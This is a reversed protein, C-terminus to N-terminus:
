GILKNLEHLYRPVETIPDAAEEYELVVYGRYNAQNLIAILKELDAPEKKGNVPIVVKIQANIAYPAIRALDAYPDPTIALNGSDLNAGFWPSDVSEIIQLYRDIDTTFDHNEMALIMGKTAAYRCATKLNAIINRVAQDKNMEKAPNGAFVRIVPVGMLAYTDIWQKTYEMQKTLEPSDPAHSFNNGIAGGSIDLGLMHAHRKLKYAHEITCPDPLFYSTLEVGSVPWKTAMEMFDEMQIKGKAHADNRFNPLLSRLSYAAVSLKLSSTTTVNQTTSALMRKASTKCATLSVASLAVFNRRNM